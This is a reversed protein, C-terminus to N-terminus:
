VTKTRDTQVYEQLRDRQGARVREAFGAKQFGHVLGVQATRKATFTHGSPCPEVDPVVCQDVHLQPSANLVSEGSLALPSHLSNVITIISTHLAARGFCYTGLLTGRYHM